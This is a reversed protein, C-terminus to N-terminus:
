DQCLRVQQLEALLMLLRNRTYARTTLGILRQVEGTEEEYDISDM